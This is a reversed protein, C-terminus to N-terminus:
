WHVEVAAVIKVDKSAGPTNLREWVPVDVGGKLMVNRVSFLFAPALSLYRGGGVAGTPGQGSRRTRGEYRGNAEVLLVLDPARYGTRWPRVGWALNAAVRDGPDTGSRSLRAIGRLGAFYYWRRSERGAAMGLMVEPGGRSLDAVSTRPFTVGGLLAVADSRGRGFNTAFRWKARLGVSGLSGGDVPSNFPLVATVTLEETIGYLLEVALVDEDGATEVETELGWGGQWTTHPGVGFIPEHRLIGSPGGAAQDPTGM